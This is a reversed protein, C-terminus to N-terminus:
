DIRVRTPCLGCCGGECHQVRRHERRHGAAAHGPCDAHALSEQRVQPRRVLETVKLSRVASATEPNHNHRGYLRVLSEHRGTSRRNRALDTSAFAEVSVRSTSANLSFSAGAPAVNQVETPLQRFKLQLGHAGITPIALMGHGAISLALFLSNERFCDEFVDFRRRSLWGDM